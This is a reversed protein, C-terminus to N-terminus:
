KLDLAHFLRRWFYPRVAKKTYDCVTIHRLISPPTCPNIMIPVMRKNRAGPSLALAFKAQFDCHGSELFEPSLVVIMRKCRNEILEATATAYSGGPVLDRWDTCFRLNYPPKEMASLMDLVFKYDTDPNHCVYADFTEVPGDPRDNLTIGRLEPTVPINPYCTGSVVPVQVPGPQQQQATKKTWNKADKKLQEKLAMLVDERELDTIMELLAGITSDRRTVWEKMVQEMPDKNLEFNQIELMSFGMYDALGKWDNGMLKPPNMHMALIRRTMHGIATAHLKMITDQDPFDSPSEVVRHCPATTQSSYTLFKGAKVPPSCSCSTRREKPKAGSSDSGHLTRRHDINKPTTKPSTHPNSSGMKALEVESSDIWEWLGAEPEKFEIIERGSTGMEAPIVKSKKTYWNVLRQYDFTFLDYIKM